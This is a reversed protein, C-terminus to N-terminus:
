YVIAGYNRLNPNKLDHVSTLIWRLVFTEVVLNALSAHDVTSAQTSALM